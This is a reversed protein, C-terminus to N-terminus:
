PLTVGPDLNFAGDVYVTRLGGPLTILLDYYLETRKEKSGTLAQLTELAIDIQIDSASVTNTVTIGAATTLTVLAPDPEGPKKRIQMKFSWGTLDIVAGNNRIKWKQRFDSNRRAFLDKRAPM